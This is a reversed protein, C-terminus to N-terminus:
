RPEPQGPQWGRIESMVQPQRDPILHRLLVSYSLMTVM